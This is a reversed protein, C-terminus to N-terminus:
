VARWSTKGGDKFALQSISHAGPRPNESTFQKQVAPTCASRPYARRWSRARLRLRLEGGRAWQGASGHEQVRVAESDRRCRSAARKATRRPSQSAGM